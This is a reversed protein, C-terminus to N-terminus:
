FYFWSGPEVTTVECCLLSPLLCLNGVLPVEPLRRRKQTGRNMELVKSSKPDCNEFWTMALDDEPCVAAAEKFISPEKTM